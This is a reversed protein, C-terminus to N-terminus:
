RIISVWLTKMVSANQTFTHNIGIGCTLNFCNETTDRLKPPGALSLLPKGFPSSYLRKSGEIFHAGEQSLRAEKRSTSSAEVRHLVPYSLSIRKPM